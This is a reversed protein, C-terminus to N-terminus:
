DHAGGLLVMQFPGDCPDEFVSYHIYGGSEINMKRKGFWQYLNTGDYRFLRLESWGNDKPKQNYASPETESVHTRPAHDIQYHTM